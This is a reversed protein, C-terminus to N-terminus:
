CCNQILIIRDIKLKLIVDWGVMCDIEKSYFFIGDEANHAGSEDDKMVDFM